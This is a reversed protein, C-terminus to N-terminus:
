SSRSDLGAERVVRAIQRNITELGLRRTLGESPLMPRAPLGPHRVAGSFAPGGATMFALVRANRPRITYPATGKEHFEAIQNDTGVEVFKKGLNRMKSTFSQKLRGTDQLPKAGSLAIATGVVRRGRFKTAGQSAKINGARRGAITNPSLRPWRTEIGGRRFNQGIWNLLRQGVVPYMEDADFQGQLAKLQRIIREAELSIGVGVSM